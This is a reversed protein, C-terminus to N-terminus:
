LYHTKWIHFCERWNCSPMSSVRERLPLFPSPPYPSHFDILQFSWLNTLTSVEQCVSYRQRALPPEGGKYGEIQMIKEWKKGWIRAELGWYAQNLKKSDFLDQKGSMALLLVSSPTWLGVSSGQRHNLIVQGQFSPDAQYVLPGKTDWGDLGLVGSVRPRSLCGKLGEHSKVSYRKVM